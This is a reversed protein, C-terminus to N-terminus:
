KNKRIEDIDKRYEPHIIWKSDSIIEKDWPFIICDDTEIEWYDPLVSGQHVALTATRVETAGKEILAKRAKTLTRGAVCIDDVLLVKQGRVDDTPRVFWEPEDRVVIENKRSSLKIPLFDVMLASAIVVGPIVGGKAIGVVTDPHYDLSIKMALKKLAEGLGNWGLDLVNEHHHKYPHM